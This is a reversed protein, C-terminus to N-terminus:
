LVPVSFDAVIWAIYKVEWQDGAGPGNGQALQRGM